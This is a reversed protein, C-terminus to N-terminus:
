CGMAKFSEKSSELTQKCTSEIQTKAADGGAEMAQKWADASQM